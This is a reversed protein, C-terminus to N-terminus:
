IFLSDRMAVSELYGDPENAGPAVVFGSFKTCWPASRQAGFPYTLRDLFWLTNTFFTNSLLTKEVVEDLPDAWPIPISIGPDM